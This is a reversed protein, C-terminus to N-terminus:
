QTSEYDDGQDSCEAEPSRAGELARATEPIETVRRHRVRGTLVALPASLIYLGLLVALVLPTLMVVSFIVAILFVVPAPWQKRLNLDKFSKYPLNSVMLVALALVFVAVVPIFYDRRVPEPSLLVLFAIAGAGAPIPLGKFDSSESSGASFRALRISGAVLFLFAFAMGARPVERLGWQFVLLAPAVGFSVVDAVTDYVGGFATTTGTLRAIRGDLIDTIIAILILVAAREMQGRSSAIVALFGCFINGVTFLSPVLFIGRRIRPDARRRRVKPVRMTEIAEQGALTMM